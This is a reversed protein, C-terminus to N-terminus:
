LNFPLCLFIESMEENIEKATSKTLMFNSNHWLISNQVAHQIHNKNDTVSKLKPESQITVAQVCGNKKSQDNDITRSAYKLVSCYSSKKGM